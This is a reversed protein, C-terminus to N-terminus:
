FTVTISESLLDWNKSFLTGTKYLTLTKTKTKKKCCFKFYKYKAFLSFKGQIAQIQNQALASLTIERNFIHSLDAAGSVRFRHQLLLLDRDM